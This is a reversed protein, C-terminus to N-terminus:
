FSILETYLCLIRGGVDAPLREFVMSLLAVDSSMRTTPELPSEVRAMKSRTSAAAHARAGNRRRLWLARHTVRHTALSRRQEVVYERWGGALRVGRLYAFLKGYIVKNEPTEGYLAGVLKFAVILEPAAPLGRELQSADTTEGPKVL